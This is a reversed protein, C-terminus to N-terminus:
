SESLLISIHYFIYFLQILLSVTSTLLYLLLLNQEVIHIQLDHANRDVNPSQPIVLEPEKTLFRLLFHSSELLTLLTHIHPIQHNHKIDRQFVDVPLQYVM